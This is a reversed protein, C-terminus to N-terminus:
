IEESPHADHHVEQLSALALGARCPFPLFITARSAPSSGSPKVQKRSSRASQLDVVCTAGEITQKCLHHSITLVDEGNEQHIADKKCHEEDDEQSM